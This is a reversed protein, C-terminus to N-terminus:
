PEEPRLATFRLIRNRGQEAVLIEGERFAIGQPAWLGQAIVTLEGDAYRLLRGPTADETVWVSGDPAVEVQDPHDLGTV